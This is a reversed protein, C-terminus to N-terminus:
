EGGLNVHLAMNVFKCGNLYFYKTRMFTENSMIRHYHQVVGSIKM